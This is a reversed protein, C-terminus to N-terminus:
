NREMLKPGSKRHHASRTYVSTCKEAPSVDTPLRGFAAYADLCTPTPATQNMYAIMRRMEELANAQMLIYNKALLLTAIKSLKRVSPSHAYPIVARLEDLADNLDHMRRRERANINLRIIKQEGNKKKSQSKSKPVLLRDEYNSGVGSSENVGNGVNPGGGGGSGGGSHIISGVGGIVNPVLSGITMGNPHNNSNSLPHHSPNNNNNNNNINNNTNCLASTRGAGLKLFDGGGGVDVDVDVDLVDDGAKSCTTSMNEDSSNEEVDAELLHSQRLRSSSSSSASSSSSVSSSSDNSNNHHHHSHHHHSNSNNHNNHLHSTPPSLSLALPQASMPPPSHSSM